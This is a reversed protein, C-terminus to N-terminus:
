ARPRLYKCGALGRHGFKFIHLICQSMTVDAAASSLRVFTIHDAAAGALVLRYERKLASCALVAPEARCTAAICHMRLILTRYIAAM